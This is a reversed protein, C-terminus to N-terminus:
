SVMENHADSCAAPCANMVCYSVYNVGKSACGQQFGVSVRWTARIRTSVKNNCNTTHRLQEVEHSNSGQAKGVGHGRSSGYVRGFGLFLGM